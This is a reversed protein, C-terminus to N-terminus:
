ALGYGVLGTSTGVFLRGGYVALGGTVPAGANVTWLPACPPTDCGAADFARVTGDVSGVYVVGGAVAPQTSPEAAATTTWEPACLVLGCGNAPLANLRGDTTAVFLTSGDLAPARNVVAGVFARWRFGGSAARHAYLANGAGTYLTDDDGIVVPTATGSLPRVWEPECVLPSGSEYLPVCATTLDYAHVAGGVSVYLRDEGLTGVGGNAEFTLGGWSDGGDLRDVGVTTFEGAKTLEHEITAYASGRLSQLAGPTAPGHEVMGTDAQLTVLGSFLFGSAGYGTWTGVVEDGVIHPESITLLDDYEPPADPVRVTWRPGGTGPEFAAFSLGTRVFLGAPTAVPTGAGRELPARFRETLGAV